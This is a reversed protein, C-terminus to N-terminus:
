LSADVLLPSEIKQCSAGLIDDHGVVDVVLPQFRFIIIELNRVKKFIIAPEM